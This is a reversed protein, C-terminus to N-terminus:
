QHYLLYHKKISTVPFHLSNTGIQLSKLIVLASYASVDNKMTGIFDLSSYLTFVTGTCALMATSLSIHSFISLFPHFTRQLYHVQHGTRWEIRRAKEMGTSKHIANKHIKSEAHAPGIGTSLTWTGPM